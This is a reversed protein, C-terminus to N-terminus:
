GQHIKKRQLARIKKRDCSRGTLLSTARSVNEKQHPDGDATARRGGGLVAPLQERARGRSAQGGKEREGEEEERRGRPLFSSSIVENIFFSPSQSPPIFIM